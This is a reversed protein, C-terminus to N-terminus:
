LVCVTSAYAVNASVISVGPGWDYISAVGIYM